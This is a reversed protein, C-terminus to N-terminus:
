RAEAALREALLPLAEAGILRRMRPLREPLVAAIGAAGSGHAERAAEALERIPGIGRLHEALRGPLGLANVTGLAQLSRRLRAAAGPCGTMLHEAVASLRRGREPGPAAWAARLEQRVPPREREALHGLVEAAVCQECHAILARAGWVRQVATDLAASGDAVVLLGAEATLGRSALNETAARVVATELTSGRWLGLVRKCGDGLVGVAVTAWQGRVAVAGLFLVVYAEGHLVRQGDRWPTAAQAQGARARGQGRGGSTAPAKAPVGGDGDAAAGPGFGGRRLVEELRAAVSQPGGATGAGGEMLDLMAGAGEGVLWAARARDTWQQVADRRQRWGKEREGGDSM